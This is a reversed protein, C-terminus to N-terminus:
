KFILDFIFYVLLHTITRKNFSCFSVVIIISVVQMYSMVIEDFYM